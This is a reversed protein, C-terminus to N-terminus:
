KFTFAFYVGVNNEDYSDLLVNDVSMSYKKYEVMIRGWNWLDKGVGIGYGFGAIDTDEIGGYKGALIAYVDTEVKPVRYGAELQGGFTVIKSDKGEANKLDEVTGIDLQMNWGLYLRNSFVKFMGWRLAYQTSDYDGGNKFDLNTSQAGIGFYAKKVPEFASASMSLVAAVSITTIIKALRKM